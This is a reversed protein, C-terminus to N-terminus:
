IKRSIERFSLVCKATKRSAITLYEKKFLPSRIDLEALPRGARRTTHKGALHIAM